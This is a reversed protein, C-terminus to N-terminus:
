RRGRSIQRRMAEIQTDLESHKGALVFRLNPHHMHITEAAEDCIRIPLRPKSQGPIVEYSWGDSPRKDTLLPALLEISWDPRTTRLVQCMTWCRQLSAHLMYEKFIPKAAEGAHEGLASLLKDGEGVPWVETAPLQRIFTELRTLVLAADTQIIAPLSALLLDPDTTRKFIGLSEAHIAPQRCWSVARIFEDTRVGNALERKTFADRDAGIRHVELRHLRDAIMLVSQSPFYYLLRMTAKIQLDSGIDWGDLSSGNFIGETAYDFLLADLLHQSPNESAWIARVQRAITADHTPSNLFICESPQYRVALYPRGAIQGIIVFCVDGITVTYSKLGDRLSFRPATKRLLALADQETPNLPNGWMEAQFEMIGDLANHRITLKTPTRDSLSKLLFPLARPGIEVLKRVAEAPKIQHDTLLLTYVQQSGAIPAFAQGSLTPSLGFDPRDIKALDGIRREIQAADRRSVPTPVDLKISQVSGLKVVPPAMALRVAPAAVPHVAAKGKEDDLATAPAGALVAGGALIMAWLWPLTRDRKMSNM